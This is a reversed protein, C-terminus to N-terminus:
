FCESLVDKEDTYRCYQSISPHFICCICISSMGFMGSVTVLIHRISEGMMILQIIGSERKPTNPTIKLKIENKSSIERHLCFLGLHSAANQPTVDPAIRNQSHGM